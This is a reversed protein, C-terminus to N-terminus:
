TPESPSARSHRMVLIGAVVLGISIYQSPTLGAYRLDGGDAPSARLFDLLFRCPAYLLALTAVYFGPKRATRSLCLFIVAIAALLIADYLGLDHRPFYPPDGTRYDAVALAFHSVRGPHDHVGFCGIRAISWGFPGAFAFADGIELMSAKRRWKWVWAGVIGGIIGGYMTWGFRHELAESPNRLVYYFTEPEYLIGNLLYSVPFALLLVHVAFDLTREVSRQHARAFLVAVSLTVVIAVMVALEFPHVLLETDFFPLRVVFSEWRFWSILLAANM